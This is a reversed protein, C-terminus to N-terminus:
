ILSSLKKPFNIYYVSSLPVLTNNTTELDSHVVIIYTADKTPMFGSFAGSLTEGNTLMIEINAGPYMVSEIPSSNTQQNM